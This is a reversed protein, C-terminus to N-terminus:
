IRKGLSSRGVVFEMFLYGKWCSSLLFVGPALLGQVLLCFETEIIDTKTLDFNLIRVMEITGILM